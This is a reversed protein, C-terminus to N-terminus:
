KFRPNRYKNQYKATKKKFSENQSDEKAKQSAIKKEELHENISIDKALKDRREILQEIESKLNLLIQSAISGEKGEINDGIIETLNTHKNELDKLEKKQKQVKKDLDSYEIPKSL